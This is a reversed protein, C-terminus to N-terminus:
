RPFVSCVVNDITVRLFTISKLLKQYLYEQCLHGVIVIRTEVEGTETSGAFFLVLIIHTSIFLFVAIIKM